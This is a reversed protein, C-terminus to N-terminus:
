ISSENISTRLRTVFIITASHRLGLVSTSHPAQVRNVTFCLAGHTTMGYM